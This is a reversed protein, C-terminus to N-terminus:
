KILKAGGETLSGLLEGTEPSFVNGTMDFVVNDAADLSLGPQRLNLQLLTASGTESNNKRTSAFPFPPWFQRTAPISFLTAPTLCECSWRIVVKMLPIMTRQGSDVMGARSIKATRDGALFFVACSSISRGLKRYSSALVASCRPLTRLM